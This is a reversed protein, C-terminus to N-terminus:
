TVFWPTAKIAKMILQILHKKLYFYKTYMMIKVTFPFIYSNAQEAPAPLLLGSHHIRIFFKRIPSAANKIKKANDEMSNMETSTSFNLIIEYQSRM